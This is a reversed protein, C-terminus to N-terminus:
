DLRKRNFDKIISNKELLEIVFNFDSDISFVQRTSLIVKLPIYFQINNEDTLSYLTTNASDLEKYYGKPYNVSSNKGETLIKIDREM